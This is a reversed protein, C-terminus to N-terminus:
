KRYIDCEVDYACEVDNNEHSSVVDYGYLVNDGSIVDDSYM